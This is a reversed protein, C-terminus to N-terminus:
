KFKIPLFRGNIKGGTLPYPVGTTNPFSIPQYQLCRVALFAFLQAELSQSHWGAQDASLITCQGVRKQLRQTFERLIVPNRWGGGALIWQKLYYAPDLHNLARVISDATFAALTACADAVSLANLLAPLQLDGSDLSKPPSREFYNAATKALTTKYLTTLTKECVVGKAGMRGDQDMSAAGQTAQGIYRDLLV